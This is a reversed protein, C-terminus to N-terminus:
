IYNVYGIPQNSNTHDHFAIRYGDMILNFSEAVARLSKKANYKRTYNESHCLIKGNSAVIHWYYAIAFQRVNIKLRKDFVVKEKVSKYLHIGQKAPTKAM